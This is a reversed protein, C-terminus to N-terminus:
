VYQTITQIIILGGLVWSLMRRSCDDSDDNPDVGGSYTERVGDLYEKEAQSERRDDDMQNLDLPM